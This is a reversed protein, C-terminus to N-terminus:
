IALRQKLFTFWRKNEDVFMWRCGQFELWALRVTPEILARLTKDEIQLGHSTKINRIVHMLNNPYELCDQLPNVRTDSVILNVATKIIDEDENTFKMYIVM